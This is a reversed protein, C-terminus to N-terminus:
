IVFSAKDYKGNNMRRTTSVNQILNLNNMITKNFGLIHTFEHLFITSLAQYKSDNDKLKSLIFGYIVGGILPRKTIDNNLHYYIEPTAYNLNENNITSAERIYIFLDADEYTNLRGTCTEYPSTLHSEVDPLYLGKNLRKVKILKELTRKANDIASIILNTDTTNLSGVLCRYNVYIRINSYENSETVQIDRGQLKRKNDKGKSCTILILFFLFLFYVM